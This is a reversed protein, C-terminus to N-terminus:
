CNWDRHLVLVRCRRVAATGMSYLYIGSKWVGTLFFYQLYQSWTQVMLSRWAQLKLSKVNSGPMYAPYALSLLQLNHLSSNQTPAWHMVRNNCSVCGGEYKGDRFLVCTQLTLTTHIPSCWYMHHHCLAIAYVWPTHLLANLQLTRLTKKCVDCTYTYTCRVFSFFRVLLVLL